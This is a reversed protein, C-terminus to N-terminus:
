KDLTHHFNWPKSDLPCINKSKLWQSICHAHFAHNCTGWALKCEVSKEETQCEICTDMIHNRCIACKDVIINLTWLAVIKAKTLRIRPTAM